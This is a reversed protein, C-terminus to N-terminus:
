GGGVGEGRAFVLTRERTFLRNNQKNNTEKKRLKNTQKKFEM